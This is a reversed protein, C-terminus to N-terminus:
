LFPGPPPTVQGVKRNTLGFVVMNDMGQLGDMQTLLANVVSDYAVSAASGDGRGRERFVADIEDLILVYLDSSAGM